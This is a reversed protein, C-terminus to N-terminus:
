NMSHRDAIDLYLTQTSRGLYGREDWLTGTAVGRGTPAYSSEADLAVWEGVPLRNVNVSLDPNMFLWTPDLTLRSVGNCFDAPVVLRQLPTIELGAIIPKVVRMWLSGGATTHFGGEIERIEIANRHFMTKDEPGHGWTRTDAMELSVPRPHSTPKEHVGEPLGITELRIRQVMARTLEIGQPSLVRVVIAQIRKGERIVETELTLPVLPVVRFLDMTFRSVQMPTLTPVAEIHGCILAALAGGHQGEDYWGANALQTSEYTNPDDTPLYVGAPDEAM